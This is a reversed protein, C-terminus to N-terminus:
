TRAEPKAPLSSNYSYRVPINMCEYVGVGSYYYSFLKYYNYYDSCLVRQFCHGEIIVSNNMATIVELWRKM